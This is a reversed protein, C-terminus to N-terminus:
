RRGKPPPDFPGVIATFDKIQVPLRLSQDFYNRGRPQIGIARLAVDVSHCGNDILVGGGSHARICVLETQPEDHRARIAIRRTSSDALLMAECQGLLGLAATDDRTLTIRGARAISVTGPSLTQRAAPIACIEFSM